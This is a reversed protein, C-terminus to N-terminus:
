ACCARVAPAPPHAVSDGAWGPVIRQLAWRYPRLAASEFVDTDRLHAVLAEAIPRFTGGGEVARGTLVTMGADTALRAAEELMRSKGIGAEGTILLVRGHGDRARALAREVAAREAM